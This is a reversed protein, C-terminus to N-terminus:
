YTNEFKSYLIKLVNVSIKLLIQFKLSQAISCDMQALKHNLQATCLAFQMECIDAFSDM